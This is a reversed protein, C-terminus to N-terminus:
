QAKGASVEYSRISDRLLWTEIGHGFFGEEIKLLGDCVQLALDLLQTIHLGLRGNIDGILDVLKGLFTLL